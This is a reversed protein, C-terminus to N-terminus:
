AIISYDRLVEGFMKGLKIQGDSDYHYIDPGYIPEKNFELNESITDIYINLSDTSAVNIKAQNIEKYYTWPTSNSIGADLFYIGHPSTYYSFESRLDKIFANLYSEYETHKGNTSDDEGQMFCIASIEPYLDQAELKVLQENVYDVLALYCDGSFGSSPSRWNNALSTAGVAYKILYIKESAGLGFNDITEAIGIEPGFQGIDTGQGLKVKVFEGESHNGLRNNNYAIRTDFGQQYKEVINQSFHYKLYQSWAHGEMNSQGALVVVQVKKAKNSESTNTMNSRESENYSTVNCSCLLTVFFVALYRYLHKM